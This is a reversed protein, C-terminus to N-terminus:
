SNKKIGQIFIKTAASMEKQLADRGAEDVAQGKSWRLFNCRLGQLIHLFIEAADNDLGPDFENSQKGENIIKKILGLEVDAFDM